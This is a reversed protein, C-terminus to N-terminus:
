VELRGLHSSIFAARKGVGGRAQYDYEFFPISSRDPSSARLQGRHHFYRIFIGQSYAFPVLAKAAEILFM